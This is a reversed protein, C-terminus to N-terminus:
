YYVLTLAGVAGGLLAGGLVDSLWHEALYIRSIMMLIAFLVALSLIIHKYKLLKTNKLLVFVAIISLFVTRSVHGSPFSYKTEVYQPLQFPLKYRVLDLPPGPHYVFQKSMIEFVLIVGFLVFSYPILRHQKYFLLSLGLLAITIIEVSGLISFVSLIVDLSRPMVGQLWLTVQPDFATFFQRVVLIQVLIYILMLFVGVKFATLNRPPM